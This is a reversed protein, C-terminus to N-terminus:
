SCRSEFHDGVIRVPPVNACQADLLLSAALRYEALARAVDADSRKGNCREEVYRAWKEGYSTHTAELRALRDAATEGNVQWGCWVLGESWRERADPNVWHSEAQAGRVTLPPPSIKESYEEATVGYRDFQALIDARTRNYEELRWANFAAALEESIPRGHPYESVLLGVAAVVERQWDHNSYSSISKQYDTAEYRVRLRQVEGAGAVRFTSEGLGSCEWSFRYHSM